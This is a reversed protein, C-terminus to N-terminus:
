PWSTRGLHTHAGWPKRSEPLEPSCSSPRDGLCSAPETQGPGHVARRIEGRGQRDGAGSALSSPLMQCNWGPAVPFPSQAEWSERRHPVGRGRRLTSGPFSPVEAVGSPRRPFQADSGKEGCRGRGNLFLLFSTSPALSLRAPRSGGLRAWGPLRNLEIRNGHPWLYRPLLPPTDQPATPCVARGRRGRMPRVGPGGGGPALPLAPHPSPVSDSPHVWTGGGSENPERGPCHAFGNQFGVRVEDAWHFRSRRWRRAGLEGPALAPVPPTHSGPGWAPLRHSQAAWSLM